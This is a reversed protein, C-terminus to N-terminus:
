DKRLNIVQFILVFILLFTNLAFLLAFSAVTFSKINSLCLLSLAMTIGLEIFTIIYLSYTAYMYNAKKFNEIKNGSLSFIVVIMAIVLAMMATSYTVLSSGLNGLNGQFHVNALITCKAISYVVFGVTNVIIAVIFALFVGSRM